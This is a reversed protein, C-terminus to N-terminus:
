DGWYKEWGPYRRQRDRWPVGRMEIQVFVCEPRARANGCRQVFEVHFFFGGCHLIQVPFFEHRISRLRDLGIAEFSDRDSRIMRVSWRGTATSSTLTRCRDPSQVIARLPLSLVLVLIAQAEEGKSESQWRNDVKKCMETGNSNLRVMERQNWM